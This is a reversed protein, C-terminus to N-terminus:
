AAPWHGHPRSPTPPGPHKEACLGARARLAAACLALAPTAGKSYELEGEDSQARTACWAWPTTDTAPYGYSGAAWVMGEPVLTTARDISATLPPAPFPHGLTAGILQELEWTAGTAEECMKALAILHVNSMPCSM